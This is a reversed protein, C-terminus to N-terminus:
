LRSVWSAIFVLADRREPEYPFSVYDHWANPMEHYTVKGKGEDGDKREGLQEIMRDRLVKIQDLMLEGGGAMILTPPFREFSPYIYKSSPSVYRNQAWIDQSHVGTFLISADNGWDPDVWDSQFWTSSAPDPNINWKNVTLDTWPSVLLLAGPPALPTTLENGYEVLYRVLALGLNGGASDGEVIINEPAFGVVNVLYNYGAIADILQSPFPNKCDGEKGSALRYEPGFARHVNDPCRRLIGKLIAYTPDNPHASFMTYAGGHFSLLVKEGPSPASGMAIGANRHSWYGPIKISEVGSVKAWIAIDGTILDPVADIWLGLVNKGGKIALHNAVAPALGARYSFM